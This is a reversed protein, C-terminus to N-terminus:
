NRAAGDQDARFRAESGAAEEIRRGARDFAPFAASFHEALEGQQTELEAKSMERYKVARGANREAM